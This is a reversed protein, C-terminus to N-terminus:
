EPGEGLPIWALSDGVNVQSVGCPVLALANAQALGGLVSSGQGGALQLSREGDVEPGVRVRAWQDKAEPSTWAQASIAQRRIAILRRHGALKRIAPRVFLEFSVYASAPNGPLTFIPTQRPGLAGFGQPMGPQMAVKGFWVTGYESLVEKVTDYAGASVGGSTIVLDADALEESLVARLREPRDPIGGIVRVDAGADLVAAALMVGNSDVVQGFGAVDGPSVLEDGTSLVVVHPQRHVRVQGRGVAALVAIEGPGIVTGATLVRDTPRLDTGAIRIHRGLDVSEFIRVLQTGGDTAEVAIVADAGTPVPAGTMIRMAQGPRLTLRETCGAAIDAVVPLERPHGAQAGELDQARAAYGDMASNDFGPLAVTSDVDEALVRGRAQVLSVDVASLPSLGALALALHDDPTRFRPPEAM